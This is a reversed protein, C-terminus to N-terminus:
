HDQHQRYAGDAPETQSRVPRSVKGAAGTNLQRVVTAAIWGASRRADGSCVHHRALRNGDFDVGAPSSQKARADIGGKFISGAHGAVKAIISRNNLHRQLATQRRIPGAQVLARAFPRWM